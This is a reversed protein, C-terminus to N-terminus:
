GLASFNTSLQCGLGEVGWGSYRGPGIRHECGLQKALGDVVACEPDLCDQTRPGEADDISGDVGSRSGVIGDLMHLLTV